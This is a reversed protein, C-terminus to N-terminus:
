AEGSVDGDFVLVYNIELLIAAWPFNDSSPPFFSSFFFSFFLLAYLTKSCLDFPILPSPAPKASALM